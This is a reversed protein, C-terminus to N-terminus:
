LNYKNKVYLKGEETGVSLVLMDRQFERLCDKKHIYLQDHGIKYWRVDVLNDCKKGCVFCKNM